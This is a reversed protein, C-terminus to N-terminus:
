SDPSAYILVVQQMYENRQFVTLRIMEKLQSLLKVLYMM